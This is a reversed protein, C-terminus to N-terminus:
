SFRGLRMAMTTHTSIATAIECVAIVVFSGAFGRLLQSTIVSWECLVEMGSSSKGKYFGM